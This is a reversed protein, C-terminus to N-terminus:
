FLSDIDLLDEDDEDKEEKIKRKKQHPPEDIIHSYRRYDRYDRWNKHHILQRSKEEKIKRELELELSQEAIRTLIEKMYVVNFSEPEQQIGCSLTKREQPNWNTLIEKFQTLAQESEIYNALSLM